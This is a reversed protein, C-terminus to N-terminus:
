DLTPFPKRPARAWHKRTHKKNADPQEQAPQAAPQVMYPPPPPPLMPVPVRVCATCALAAATLVPIASNM